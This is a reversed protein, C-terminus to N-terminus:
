IPTTLYTHRLQALLIDIPPASGLRRLLASCLIPIVSIFISFPAINDCYGGGVTWTGM